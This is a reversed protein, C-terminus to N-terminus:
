RRAGATPPRFPFVAPSATPEAGPRGAPVLFTRGDPAALPAVAVGYCASVHEPTLVAAVPGVALAQGATLLLARDAWGLAQNVDHLSAVVALGRQHALQRLLDLVEVQFGLDLHATPEDLLLVRAEQALARALAVRRLEGGSLADLPRHALAELELQALAEDVRERDGRTAPLFWGRHPARGLAVADRVTLDGSPRDLQPTYAVRRAYARPALTWIGRGDLSVEGKAPRLQRALAKLLTSKGAGNPGLLSAFTGPEVALDLGQLVTRSGYACTLHSARLM